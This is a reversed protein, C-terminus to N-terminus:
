PASAPSEQGVGPQVQVTQRSHVMQVITAGGLLVLAGALQVWRLSEGLLAWATATAVIPELLGIVSAVAAPLHRLASTGLAYALATSLLAVAVVLLWVPPHWPGLDAPADLIAVPITWPPAIASVAVAGIVVGWTVMGLPERTTAGHEGILFYAASCVTGGLGALVGVADLSLGEWVQAVLALGLMALTIGLWMARPLRVHRVFRTWLAILVPSMFELLIAIGVPLRQVAVFYCLQVGAVGLLGYGLLLPWETKRVRLLRPRVLGIGALLVVAALGIRAAAVQEPSLGAIMAPKAITGSMGFCVSSVLILATGRGRQARPAPAVAPVEITM